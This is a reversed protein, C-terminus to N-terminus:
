LPEILPHDFLGSEEGVWGWRALVRREAALGCGISAGSTYNGNLISELRFRRM